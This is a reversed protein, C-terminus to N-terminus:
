EDLLQELRAGREAGLHPQANGPWWEDGFKAEGYASLLRITEELREVKTPEPSPQAAAYAAQVEEVVQAAGPTPPFRPDDRM